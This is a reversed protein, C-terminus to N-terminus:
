RRSPSRRVSFAMRGDRRAPAASPPIHRAPHGNLGASSSRFGTNVAPARHRPRAGSTVPSGLSHGATVHDYPGARPLPGLVGSWRTPRFFPARRFPPRRRVNSKQPPSRCTPSHLNGGPALVFLTIETSTAAASPVSTGRPALDDRAIGASLGPSLPTACAAPLRGKGRGVQHRRGAGARSAGFAGASPRTGFGASPGVLHIMGTSPLAWSAPSQELRSRAGASGPRPRVREELRSGVLRHISTGRRPTLSARRVVVRPWPSSTGVRSTM